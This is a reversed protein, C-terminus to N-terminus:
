ASRTTWTHMFSFSLNAPAVCVPAGADSFVGSLVLLTEARTSLARLSAALVCDGFVNPAGLALLDSM